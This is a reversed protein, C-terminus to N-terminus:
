SRRSPWSPRAFFSEPSVCLCGVEGFLSEARTILYGIGRVPHPIWHPDGLVLDIGVGTLLDWRSM